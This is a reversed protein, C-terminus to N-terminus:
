KFIELKNNEKLYTLVIEEDFYATKNGVEHCGEFFIKHVSDIHQSYVKMCNAKYIASIISKGCFDRNKDNYVNKMDISVNKIVEKNFTTYYKFINNYIFKGFDCWTLICNNINFQEKLLENTYKLLSIKNCWVTILDKAVNEPLKSISLKRNCDSAIYKKIELAEIMRIESENREQIMNM